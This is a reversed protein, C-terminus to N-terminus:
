QPRIFEFGHQHAWAMAAPAVGTLIPTVGAPVLGRLGEPNAALEPTYAVHVYDLAAAGVDFLSLLASSAQRLLLKYGRLRVFDRAFTFSDPDALIDAALLNLTVAGRLAIPLAADFRLFEAALITALNLNLAFPGSDRLEQPGTLISLMRRDFSRTLRRFLWPDGKIARDPCLNAAIEHSALYREQWAPAAVGGELRLIPRWRVFRSIEAHALTHELRGLVALDMPLTAKPPEHTAPSAPDAIEDMLWAAQEPLDYLTVLQGPPFAQDPPLDALLHDLAALATELECGGRQRWVVAVRGRSLEFHQARDALALGAIADRALRQHHHKALAQPLRDTHLLLARRQTGSLETKRLLDVLAEPSDPRATFPM